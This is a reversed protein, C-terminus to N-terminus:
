CYIVGGDSRAFKFEYEKISEIQDQLLRIQEDKVEIQNNKEALQGELMNVQDILGQRQEECAVLQNNTRQLQSESANMQSELEIYKKKGVCSGLLLIMVIPLLTKPIFKLSM